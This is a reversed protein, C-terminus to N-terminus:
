LLCTGTMEPAIPLGSLTLITPAVDALIGIPPVLSLDGNILDPNPEGAFKNGIVMFPVPYNNHEKDIAGSIPNVLEEANGHDAVLFILANKKLAEPIVRALQQDVSEVAKVTAALNGTHGVMDPNAYNIAYFDFKDQALNQIINDSVISASMEPQLDYSEVSPSPILIRKEQDFPDEKMGNMFFTVHAYKETEAIHLQSFGSDAFSRGLPNQVYLTEFLVGVPLSKEYETFTIVPLVSFKKTEFKNFDKQTIAQTLQRARDARFNFFIVVDGEEVPALPTGEASMMVVPEMEEDFKETAYSEKIASVPDNHQKEAIGKFIANYAKEIRDWNKNRDMGYLRGGVSAVKGAGTSQCTNLLDTMFQAGLDKATDRGDVFAHVFTSGGINAKASFELLANLHKQSSHVGGNGILGILHLKKGSASIHKATKELLEHDFFSGDEISKNIRPLSQYRLIGSGITLHGVESNGVEGEPLGVNMGSANLLMSPFPIILPDFFPKNAVSVANTPSAPAIGFGDLVFLMVPRHSLPM